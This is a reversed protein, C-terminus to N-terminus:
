GSLRDSDEVLYGFNVLEQLLQTQRPTEPVFVFDNSQEERACSRLSEWDDPPYRRIRPGPFGFEVLCQEEPWLAVRFFGRWSTHAEVQPPMKAASYAGYVLPWNPKNWADGYVAM